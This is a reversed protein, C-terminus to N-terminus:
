KKIPEVILELGQMAQVRVTQGDQLPQESKVKWLEGEIRVWTKDGTYVILGTEGIMAERGSVVKQKRSRFAIYLVGLFFLVTAVSVGIILQLPLSFGIADTKILMISGIAFSIVGGIGLAGFSPAFAEAIILAMGLVILGLGSYNIPLLQFAYLALLLSIAGAVGPVIFGPNAFEFFLGYFGIMLLVYAVSPDTIVALFQTRWDPKIHKIILNATQLTEMKGRVSVRMGNTKKLLDPINNAVINIVNMKLAESASLSEAHSVAREAWKVNRKRLQALSRIYAKADNIAKLMSASKKAKAKKDKKDNKSKSGGGISVPTAAGLNTGPAMAAVHSAYLIYTGASAARAGSPAVYSIIPIPSALIDKIIGRMSKSLGGPTDMQLIMVQVNQKVASELGRHFFDQVAPGIAGKIELLAATKNSVPQDTQALVSRVAGGLGVLFILFYLSIILYRRPM